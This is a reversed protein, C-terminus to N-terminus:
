TSYPRPDVDIVEGSCWMLAEGFVGEPLDYHFVVEVRKGLLTEPAPMSGQRQQYSGGIGKAERTAKLTRAAEVMADSGAAEREDLGAVQATRKGFQPLAKRAMGPAPPKTPIPRKSQQLIITNLHSFLDASSFATGDKSWACALDSWGLGLVRIRIQEKLAELKASASKLKGYEATAKAATM